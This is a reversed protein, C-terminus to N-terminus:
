VVETQMGSWGELDMPQGNMPHGALRLPSPSGHDIREPEVFNPNPPL